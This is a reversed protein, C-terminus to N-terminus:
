RPGVGDLSEVDLNHDVVDDDATSKAVRKTPGAGGPLPTRSQFVREAENHALRTMEQIFFIAAFVAVMLSHGTATFSNRNLFSMLFGFGIFIMVHVDQFMSYDGTSAGHDYEAMFRIRSYTRGM